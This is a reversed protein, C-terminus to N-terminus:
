KLVLQRLLWFAKQYGQLSILILNCTLKFWPEKKTLVKFYGFNGLQIQCEYSRRVMISISINISLNILQEPMINWFLDFQIKHNTRKQFLHWIMGSVKTIWKFNLSSGNWLVLTKKSYWNSKRIYDLSMPGGSSQACDWHNIWPLSPVM